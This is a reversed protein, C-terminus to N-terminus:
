LALKGHHTLVNVVKGDCIVLAVTWHDYGTFITGDWRSGEIFDIGGYTAGEGEEVGGTTFTGNRVAECAFRERCLFRYADAAPLGLPVSWAVATRLEDCTRVGRTATGPSSVCGVPLAFLLVPALRKM